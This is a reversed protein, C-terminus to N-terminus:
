AIAEKVFGSQDGRMRGKARLGVIVGRPDGWRDDSKDGDIVPIGLYSGPLEQTRTTTFVVAVNEGHTTNILVSSDATRESASKTLHYNSPVNIRNPWKTYDYFRLLPFTTFLEPHVQEWPIDSFTNLRVRANVGHMEWVQRLEHMLLTLFAAPQEALFLTKVIRAPIVKPYMGNGATAVCGKRCAPTSYRCVNWGSLEAQALSLGYVFVSMLLTKDYKVNETPWTLLKPCGTLGHAERHSRWLRKAERLDIYDFPGRELLSRVLDM